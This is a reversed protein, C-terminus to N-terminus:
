RVCRGSTSRATGARVYSRAQVGVGLLLRGGSLENVTAAQLAMTM